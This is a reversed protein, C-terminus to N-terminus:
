SNILIYILTLNNLVVGGYLIHLFAILKNYANIKSLNLLRKLVFIAFLAVSIKIFWVLDGYKLIHIMLPNGEQGGIKLFIKTTLVDAVQFFM